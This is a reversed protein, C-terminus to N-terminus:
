PRVDLPRVARTGVVYTCRRHEIQTEFGLARLDDECAQATYPPHIEVKIARVRPAWSQGSRLVEREAGEIDMKAYDVDIAPPLRALLSEM